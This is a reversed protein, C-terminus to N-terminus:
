LSHRLSIPSRSRASNWSPEAQAKDGTMGTTPSQQKDAATDIQKVRTIADAFPARNRVMVAAM